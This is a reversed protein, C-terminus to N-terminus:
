GILWAKVMFSCDGIERKWDGAERNRRSRSSPHVGKSRKDQRKSSCDHIGEERRSGRM